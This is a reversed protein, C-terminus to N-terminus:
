TTKQRKTARDVTNEALRKTGASAVAGIALLAVLGFGIGGFASTVTDKAASAVKAAAKKSTDYVFKVYTEEGMKATSELLYDEDYPDSIFNLTAGAALGGVGLALNKSLILLSAMREAPFYMMTTGHKVTTGLMFLLVAWQMLISAAETEQGVSAIMRRVNVLQAMNSVTSTLMYSAQPLPTVTVCRRMTDWLMQSTYMTAGHIMSHFSLNPAEFTPAYEHVTLYAKMIREMLATEQEKLERLKVDVKVSKQKSNQLNYAHVGVGLGLTLPPFAFTIGAGVILMLQALYTASRANGIQSAVIEANNSDV